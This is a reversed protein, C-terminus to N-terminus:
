TQIREEAEEELQDRYQYGRKVTITKRYTYEDVVLNAIWGKMLVQTKLDDMM